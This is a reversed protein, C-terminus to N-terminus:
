RPYKATKSFQLLGQGIADALKEEDTESLSICWIDCIAHTLEHFFAQVMFSHNRGKPYLRIQNEEEVWLGSKDEDSSDIIKVQIAHGGLVFSLPIEDAIIKSSM